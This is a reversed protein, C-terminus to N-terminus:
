QEALVLRISRTEVSRCGLTIVFVGEVIVHHPPIPRRHIRELTAGLGAHVQARAYLAAPRCPKPQAKRAVLVRSGKGIEIRDCGVSLVFAISEVRRNLVAQMMFIGAQHLALSKGSHYPTFLIVFVVNAAPQFPIGVERRRRSFALNAALCLPLM